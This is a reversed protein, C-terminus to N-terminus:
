PQNWGLNHRILVLVHKNAKELSEITEERIEEGNLDVMLQAIDHVLKAKSEIPSGNKTTREKRVYIKLNALKGRVSNETVGLKDSFDSVVQARHEDTEAALYAEKLSYVVEDTYVVKTEM